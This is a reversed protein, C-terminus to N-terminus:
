TLIIVVLVVMAIILKCWKCWKDYTSYTNDDDTDKERVWKGLMNVFQSFVIAKAGYEHQQMMYLEQMLAEM